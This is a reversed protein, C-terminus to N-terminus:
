IGLLEFLSSRYSKSVTFIKGDKLHVEACGASTSIIEVVSALNIITSRHIRIFVSPDLKSALAKLSERLLFKKEYTHVEVYYGSAVFCIIQYPSLRTIRGNQKIFVSLLSEAPLPSFVKSPSNSSHSSGPIPCLFRRDLTELAKNVSREFRDERFPKLLYDFAFVEFARLAYQDHATVFIILPLEGGKLQHLVDFGSMDRMQIDLFILDPRHLRIAAIAEAGSRCEAVALIQPWRGLLHLIRQRAPAEDDIVLTRYM